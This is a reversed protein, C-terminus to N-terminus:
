TRGPATASGSTSTAAAGSRGAGLPLGAACRSHGCLDAARARREEGALLLAVRGPHAIVYILRHLRQWRRGLRRMMKNTSTVALPFSCCCPPSASRSTPVSPSTASCSASTSNRTSCSYVTFHLLAYFFAFLGLMRRLRLLHTLGALQRLPTVLLTILLFNLATKGCEHQTEQGPRRRSETSGVSPEACCGPSRFWAPSRFHGAQLRLPLAARREINRVKVARKLRQLAEDWQGSIRDLCRRAEELQRTEVKWLRETGCSTGSSGRQRWSTSTNRSRRAHSM